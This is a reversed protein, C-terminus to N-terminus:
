LSGSLTFTERVDGVALTIVRVDLPIRALAAPDPMPADGYALTVHPAWGHNEEADFGAGALAVRLRERLAALGPVDPIGFTVSPGGADGAFRGVGGLTGSVPASSAATAAVISHIRTIQDPTPKGLFALTVHLDEAPEGGPLALAAAANAPLFFAVMTGSHAKTKEAQVAERAPVRPRMRENEEPANEPDQANEAAPMKARERLWREDEAGWTILPNAPNTIKGLVDALATVDDRKVEDFDWTPRIEVPCGNMALLEDLCKNIADRIIRLTANLSMALADIMDTSTARAGVGDMGIRQYQTQLVMAIDQKRRTIAKDPDLPERGGKFMPGIEYGSPKGTNPDIDHPFLVSVMQGRKVHRGLDAMGAVATRADASARPSLMAPPVKVLIAGALDREIGNGEYECLRKLDRYSIAANRYDSRGQPNAKSTSTCVHLCKALPIKRLQFDPAPRQIYAVAHGTKPDFVWSDLSEQAREGMDGWGIKGDDYKSSRFLDKRGTKPDFVEGLRPRTSLEHISFGFSRFTLIEAVKDGWPAGLDLFVTEAFARWDDAEPSDDKAKARWERSRLFDSTAKDAAGVTPDNDKMERFFLVGRRGRFDPHWEEDVYGQAGDPDGQGYGYWNLGPVGIPVAVEVPAPAPETNAPPDKPDAM